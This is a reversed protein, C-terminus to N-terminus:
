AKGVCSKAATHTVGRDTKGVSTPSWAGVPVGTKQEFRVATDRAPLRRGSLIQNLFTYHVGLLTAAERQTM